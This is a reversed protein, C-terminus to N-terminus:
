AFIKELTLDRNRLRTILSGLREFERPTVHERGEFGGRRKLLGLEYGNLFAFVNPFRYKTEDDLAPRPREIRRVTDKIFDIEDQLTWTEEGDIITLNKDRPM